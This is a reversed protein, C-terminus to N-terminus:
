YTLGTAALYRDAARAWSFPLVARRLGEADWPTDLVRGLAACLSGADGPEVLAGNSETIMDPIGGVRSAVVPRGAALAELIVNPCGEALSPLCLLDCAGLWAPIDAHGKKGAFLVCGGLDHSAVFAEYEPRKPGDGVLCLLFDPRIERLKAAAELLHIVGKVEVLRGVYLIMKRGAPVNVQGRCRARDQVFFHQTNVGNPIVDIKGEPVGNAAIRGKLDASVVTVRRAHRLARLILPRKVLENFFNNVDSGLATQVVPLHLTRGIWSAAVGDPYLWHVNIADCGTRRVITRVAAYLTPFMLLPHIWESIVPLLPYKPSVVRIGDIEYGSPVRSFRNYEQFSASAPLRPFWPLPCVVTLECSSAMEKAIQLTFVGRTPDSPTPFLNSLLIVRPRGPM